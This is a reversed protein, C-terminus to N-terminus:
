FDYELDAGSLIQKYLRGIARDYERSHCIYIVADMDYKLVKSDILKVCHTM